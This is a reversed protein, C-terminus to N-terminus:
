FGFIGFGVARDLVESIGDYEADNAPVLKEGAAFRQRLKSMAAQGEESLLAQQIRLKMADSIRPGATFAQNPYPQHTHIVKTM